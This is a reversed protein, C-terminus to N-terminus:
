IILFKKLSFCFALLLSIVKPLLLKGTRSRAGEIFFELNQHVKLNETVYAQLLSRYVVDRVGPIPDMRRRIFFAGLGRMLTGFLPINLNDGAAVLPPAVGKMYLVFSILVYDLHSRHVPLFVLPASQQRVSHKLMQMESPRYLVSNFLRCLVKILIWGAIRLLMSSICTRMQNLLDTARQKQDSVFQAFQQEYNALAATTRPRAPDGNLGFANEISDISNLRLSRSGGGDDTDIHHSNCEADFSRQRGSGFRFPEHSCNSPSNAESNFGSESISAYDSSSSTSMDSLRNAIEGAIAQSSISDFQESKADREVM